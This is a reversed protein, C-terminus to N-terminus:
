LISFFYFISRYFPFSTSFMCSKVYMTVSFIFVEKFPLQKLSWLDESINWQQVFTLNKKKLSTGYSCIPSNEATISTRIYVVTFTDICMAKVRFFISTIFLITKGLLM